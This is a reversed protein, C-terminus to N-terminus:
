DESSIYDFMEASESGTSSNLDSILFNIDNRVIIKKIPGIQISVKHLYADNQKKLYALVGLVTLYKKIVVNIVNLEESVRPRRYRRSIISYKNEIFNEVYTNSKKLLFEIIYEKNNM